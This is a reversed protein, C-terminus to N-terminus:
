KIRPSFWLCLGVVNVLLISLICVQFPFRLNFFSHVSNYAFWRFWGVRLNQTEWWPIGWWGLARNLGCHHIYWSSKWWYHCREITILDKWIEALLIFNAEIELSLLIFSCARRSCSANLPFFDVDLYVVVVPCVLGWKCVWFTSIWSGIRWPLCWERHLITLICSWKLSNVILIVLINSGCSRPPELHICGWGQM